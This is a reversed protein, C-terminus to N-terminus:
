ASMSLAAPKQDYSWQSQIRSSHERLAAPAPSLKEMSEPALEPKLTRKDGMKHQRDQNHIQEKLFLIANVTFTNRAGFLCM